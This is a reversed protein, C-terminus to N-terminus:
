KPVSATSLDMCTKKLDVTGEDIPIATLCFVLLKIRNIDQNIVNLSLTITLAM